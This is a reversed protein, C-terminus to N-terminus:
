KELRMENVYAGCEWQINHRRFFDDLYGTLDWGKGLDAILADRVQNIDQVLYMYVTTTDYEGEDETIGCDAIFRWARDMMEERNMKEM